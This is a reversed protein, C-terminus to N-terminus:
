KSIVHICTLTKLQFRTQFIHCLREKFYLVSSNQCGTTTYHCVKPVDLLDVLMGHYGLRTEEDM